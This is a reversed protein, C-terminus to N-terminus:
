DQSGSGASTKGDPLIDEDDDHVEVVGEEPMAGTDIDLAAGVAEGAKEDWGPVLPKQATPYRVDSKQDDPM